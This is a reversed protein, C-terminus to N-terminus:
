TKGGLNILNFIEYLDSEIIKNGKQNPEIPRIKKYINALIKAREISPNVGNLTRLVIDGLNDSFAVRNQGRRGIYPVANKVSPLCLKNEEDLYGEERYEPQRLGIIGLGYKKIIEDYISESAQPGIKFNVDLKRQFWIAEAVEAPVYVAGSNWQSISSDDVIENMKGLLSKPFLKMKMGRNKRPLKELIKSPDLCTMVEQFIRWYDEDNWLMMTTYVSGQLSMNSMIREVLNSKNREAKLKREAITKAEEESKSNFIDFYGAIFPYFRSDNQMQILKAVLFGDLQDIPELSISPSVNLGYYTNMGNIRRPM